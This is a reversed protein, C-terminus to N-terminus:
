VMRRFLNDTSILANAALTLFGLFSLWVSNNIKTNFPEKVLAATSSASMLLYALVLQDAARPLVARQKKWSLKWQMPCKSCPSLECCIIARQAITSTALALPAFFDHDHYGRASYGHDISGFDFTSSSCVLWALLRALSAISHDHACPLTGCVLTRSSTCYDFVTICDRWDNLFLVGFLRHLRVTASSNDRQHALGTSSEPRFRVVTRTPLTTSWSSGQAM